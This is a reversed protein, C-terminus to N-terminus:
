AAVRRQREASARLGDVYTVGHHVESLLEPADLRRFRSEAVLLVKWILATANAVRKYRKAADTRLRVAAFPSEVVNTTRLHKWHERPFRYFTVMRDWDRELTEVAKPYRRGYREAVQRRLRECQAQTEAYPLQCLLARAAPHERRPLQDLVNLLKHNWCRQEASEPYLEALAAWIGLHGDAITLRPSSLGRAQLARLVAKWSEASERVGSELALIEKRGHRMAGIVVLVAAKDRELGAKVYLGDAWIYVLERDSLDRQRWAAYEAEWQARLRQLSSRSLPAGTGLLGRLALEFDGQALGHLYLTPLLEGVERTRRQFLPLLRSEFRAELGRLRPRRVTITGTTLSLRRPKGHGNRYGPRADVVMRRESKRRGLFTTVEEELLAQLFGQIKERAWAELREWCLTSEHARQTSQDSM